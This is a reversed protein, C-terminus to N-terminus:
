LRHTSPTHKRGAGHQPFLAALTQSHCRVVVVEHKRHLAGTVRNFPLLTSMADIVREIVDWQDRHLFIRLAYGRGAHSIYGDGLYM